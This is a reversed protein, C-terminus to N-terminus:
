AGDDERFSRRANGAFADPDDLAPSFHSIWLRHAGADLSTAAERFTM